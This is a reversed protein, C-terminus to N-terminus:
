LRTVAVGCADPAIRRLLRWGNLRDTYVTSWATPCGSARDAKPDRAVDRGTSHAATRSSGCRGRSARDPLPRSSPTSRPRSRSCPTAGARRDEVTRLLSPTGDYDRIVTLTDIRDRHWVSRSSSPELLGLGVAEHVLPRALPRGDHRVTRRRRRLALPRPDDLGVCRLRARSRVDALRGRWPDYVITFAFTVIVLLPALALLVAGRRLARAQRRRDRCGRRRPDRRGRGRRVLVAVHGPLSLVKWADGHDLSIGKQGLKFWFHQGSRLQAPAQGRPPGAPRARRRPRRLRARSGGDRRARSSCRRAAVMAAGVGIAVYLESRWLGSTDVIDFALARLTGLSARPRLPRRESRHHRGLGGDLSGTEVLNLVYWPAGLLVGAGCAVLARARRGAPVLALVAAVVVPLALAANFKTSLALGLAVSGVSARGALPRRPVRGRRPPVVRRRPREPGGRRPAPRGPADRLRPWRVRGGARSLGLRRALLVVALLSAWLAVFQPAGRVARLASAADGPLPRDGLRAPERRASSREGVPM